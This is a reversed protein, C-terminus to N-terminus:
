ADKDQSAGADSRTIKDISTRSWGRVCRRLRPSTTTRGSWCWPTPRAAPASASNTASTSCRVSACERCSRRTGARCWTTRSAPIDPPFRRAAGCMPSISRSSADRGPRAAARPRGQGDQVSSTRSAIASACRRRSRHKVMSWDGADDVGLRVGLMTRTLPMPGPARGVHGYRTTRGAAHIQARSGGDRGLGRPSRGSSARMAMSCPTTPGAARWGPWAALCASPM